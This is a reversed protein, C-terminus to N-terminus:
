VPVAEIVSHGNPNPTVRELRFGTEAFLREFDVLRREHGTAWIMMGIDTSQAENPSPTESLLHDIVAIRGHSPITRRIVGLIRSSEEDSWDHLIQKMTYLDARPVEEFFSGGIIEVRGAMPSAAIGPRAQEVVGPLDFLIGKSGPYADLLAMLLTGMSGGIDAVTEFPEFRHSATVFDVTRRTMFSMFQAFQAGMEPQDAFLEFAPKGFKEEAGTKGGRLAPYLASGAAMSNMMQQWLGDLQGAQALRANGAIRGDSDRGLLQHAQCYDVVRSLKAPELGTHLALEELTAPGASLREALGSECVLHLVPVGIVVNHLWNFLEDPDELIEGLARQM